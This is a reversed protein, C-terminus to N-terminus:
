VPLPRSGGRTRVRPRCHRRRLRWGFMGGLGWFVIDFQLLTNTADHWSYATAITSGSSDPRFFVANTGDYAVSSVGTTGLYYFSM